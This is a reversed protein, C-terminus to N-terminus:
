TNLIESFVEIFTGGCFHRPDIYFVHRQALTYEGMSCSKQLPPSSVQWSFKAPEGATNAEAM